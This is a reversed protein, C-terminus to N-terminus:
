DKFIYFEFPTGSSNVLGYEPKDDTIKSVYKLNAKIYKFNYKESSGKFAKTTDAGYQQIFSMLNFAHISPVDSANQSSSSPKAQLYFNKINNTEEETTDYMLRFSPSKDKCTIRVFFRGSFFEDISVEVKSVPFTYDELEITNNLILPTQNVTEKNINTATFFKDSPQNDYDVTFQHIYLCDGEFADFLSPAALYGWPTGIVIGGMETKWDVVALTNQFTQNNGTTDVNCSFLGIGIGLIFPIFLLNQKKM